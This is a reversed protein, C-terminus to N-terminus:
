ASNGAHERSFPIATGTKAFFEATGPTETNSQVGADGLGPALARRGGLTKRRPAAVRAPHAPADGRAEGRTVISASPAKQQRPGRAAQIGRRAIKM